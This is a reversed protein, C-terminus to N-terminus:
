SFARPSWHSFQVMWSSGTSRIAGREAMEPAVSRSTRSVRWRNRRWDTMRPASLAHISVLDSQGTSVVEM